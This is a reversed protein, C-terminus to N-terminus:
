DGDAPRYERTRSRCRRRARECGVDLSQRSPLRGILDRKRGPIFELCMSPTAFWTSTQRFDYVAPAAVGAIVELVSAERQAQRQEDLDSSHSVRVVASRRDASADSYVVKFVAHRNGHEFRTVQAIRDPSCGVVHAAYRRVSAQLDAKSVATM